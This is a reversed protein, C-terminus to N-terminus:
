KTGKKRYRHFIALGIPVIIATPVGYLLVAKDFHIGLPPNGVFLDFSASLLNRQYIPDGNITADFIVVYNSNSRFKYPFSIDSFEYFRSPTQEVLKGTAKDKITLAAYVNNANANNKDLISFNLTSDENAFPVFPLPQFVIQYDGIQKISGFFHAYALHNKNYDFPLVHLIYSWLFLFVLGSVVISRLTRMILILRYFIM